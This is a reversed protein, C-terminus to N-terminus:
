AQCSEYHARNGAADIAALLAELSFPKPLIDACCDALAIKEKPLLVLNASMFIVPFHIKSNRCWTLLEAGNMKPMRFDTILLDFTSDTSLTCQADIGNVAVKVEYGESV